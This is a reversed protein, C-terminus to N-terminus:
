SSIPFCGSLTVFVNCGAYKKRGSFICYFTLQGGKQEEGSFHSFGGGGGKM